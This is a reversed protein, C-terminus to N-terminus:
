RWNYSGTPLSTTITFFGSSDTTAGYATPTGSVCLTLTIPLQQGASPQAPPGQWTVHGVLLAQVPTPTPLTAAWFGGQVSWQGGQMAGADPQGVTGGLSFTGGTSATGGGGDLTSWSLDFGGGVQAYAAAGLLGLLVPVAVLLGLRRLQIQRDKM